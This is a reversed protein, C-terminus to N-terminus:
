PVDSSRKISPLVHRISNDIAAATLSELPLFAASVTDDRNGDQLLVGGVASARFVERSSRWAQETALDYFLETWEALSEYPPEVVIGAEELVERELAEFRGEGAEVGGGPLCWRLSLADRVVLLSGAQLCCAYVSHRDTLDDARILHEDGNIDLCRVLV